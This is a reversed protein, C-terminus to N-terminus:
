RYINTQKTRSSTENAIQPEGQPKISVPSKHVRLPFRPPAEGGGGWESRQKGIRTERFMAFVMVYGLADPAFTRSILLGPSAPM